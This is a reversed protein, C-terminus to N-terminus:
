SSMLRIVSRQSAVLDPSSIRGGRSGEPHRNRSLRNLSKMRLLAAEVRKEHKSGAFRARIAASHTEILRRAEDPEKARIKLAALADLADVAPRWLDGHEKLCRRLLDAATKPKKAKEIGALRVLARARPLAQCPYNDIVSQLMARAQDRKRAKRYLSALEHLADCAPRDENPIELVRKLATAAEQPRNLRRLVRGTELHARAVAPAEKPFKEPVMRLIRLVDEFVAKRVDGKKGRADAARKRAASLLSAGSDQALAEGTLGFLLAAILLPMRYM